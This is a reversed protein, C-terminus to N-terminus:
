RYQSNLQKAVTKCPPLDLYLMCLTEDEATEEEELTKIVKFLEEASKDLQGLTRFAASLRERVAPDEGFNDLSYQFLEAARAM